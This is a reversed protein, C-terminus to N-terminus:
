LIPLSCDTCYPHETTYVNSLTVSHVVSAALLGLVVDCVGLIHEPSRTLAVIEKGDADFCLRFSVELQGWSQVVIEGDRTVAAHLTLWAVMERNGLLAYLDAYTFAREASLLEETSVDLNLEQLEEPPHPHGQSEILDYLRTCPSFLREM